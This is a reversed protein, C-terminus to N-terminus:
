HEYHKKELEKYAKVLHHFGWNQYAHIVKYGDKFPEFPNAGYKLLLRFGRLTCICSLPKHGAVEINPDAGYKLLYEALGYKEKELVTFLIPRGRFKVNVDAGERIFRKIHWVEEKYFAPAAFVLELSSLMANTAGHDITRSLETVM